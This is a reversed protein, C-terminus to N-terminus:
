DNNELFFFVMSFKIIINSVPIKKENKEIRTKM